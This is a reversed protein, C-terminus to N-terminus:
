PKFAALRNIMQMALDKQMEEVTLRTEANSGLIRNENITLTRTVSVRVPNQIVRGQRSRLEFDMVWTLQYQRPTASAAVGFVQESKQIDLIVLWYSATTPNDAILIGNNKLQEKLAPILQSTDPVDSMVAINNLWIPVDALGRLKFGCATLTIILILTLSLYRLYYSLKNQFM